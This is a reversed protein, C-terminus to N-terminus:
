QYDETRPSLDRLLGAGLITAGLALAGLVGFGVQYGLHDMMWGVAVPAASNAAVLCFGLLTFHGARNEPRPLGCTLANMAGSFGSWTVAALGAAAFVFVAGPFLALPFFGIAALAPWLLLSNKAGWKDTLWGAAPSLAIRASATSLALWGAMQAEFKLERFGYVTSFVALQGVLPSILCLVITLRVFKGDRFFAQWMPKGWPKPSKEVPTPPERAFLVATDAVQCIVWALILLAGYGQPKPLVALLWAAIGGGALGLLGGLASSVGALRGRLRMPICAAFFEQNPLGGFGAAVQGACMMGVIFAVMVAGDSIVGSYVALGIVGVPLLYLTDAVYLYWKKHRFFRTIWPSAIMGPVTAILVGQALGIQANTAGYHVLLPQLVVNVEAWGMAFVSGMWVLCAFNRRVDRPDLGADSNVEVASIHRINRQM